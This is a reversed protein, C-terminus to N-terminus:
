NVEKGMVEKAYMFDYHLGDVEARGWVKFGWPHPKGKIYQRIPSTKGNFPIMMEDISCHEEPAVTLCNTRIADLWPRIKWLKDAQKTEETVSMNDVFHLSYLLATFRNRSMVSCVPEFASATEWYQRIGSMKVLGMHFFMGLLQELEKRNTNVSRGTKQVSYLNTYHVVEDIMAATVFIQFYALPSLIEMSPPTPLPPGTYTADPVAFDSKKWRYV